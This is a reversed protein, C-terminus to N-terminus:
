KKQVGIIQNALFKYTASDLNGESMYRTQGMQIKHKQKAKTAIKDFLFYVYNIHQGRNTARLYVQRDIYTHTHIHEQTPCKKQCKCM